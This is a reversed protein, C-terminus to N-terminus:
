SAVRGLDPKPCPTAVQGVGEIVQTQDLADPDVRSTGHQKGHCSCRCRGAASRQCRPSCQAPSWTTPAALIIPETITTM